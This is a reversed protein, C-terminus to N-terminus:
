PAVAARDAVLVQHMTSFANGRASAFTAHEVAPYAAVSSSPRRRRRGHEPEVLVELRLVGGLREIVFRARRAVRDPTGQELRELAVAHAVLGVHAQRERAALLERTAHARAVVDVARAQDHEGFPLRRHEARAHQFQDRRGPPAVRRHADVRLDVVVVQDVVDEGLDLGVVRADVVSHHEVNLAVDALGVRGVDKEHRLALHARRERVVAQRPDRARRHEFEAGRVRNGAALPAQRQRLEVGGVLHERGARHALERGHTRDVPAADAIARDPRHRPAQLPEEGLERPAFARRKRESRARENSSPCVCRRPTPRARAGRCRRNSAHSCRKRRRAIGTLKGGWIAVFHPAAEDDCTLTVDRPREFASTHTRPLVRLGAWSTRVAGVRDPMYHALTELLYDTEEATPRVEAPDGSFSRETTGVLVHGKWPMLFVARRDRPAECYYIGRELTGDLELHTGAVLEVAFCLPRPHIRRQVDVIWPRRRQRADCTIADDGRELAARPLRDVRTAALFKVPHRASAGLEAASALVARVLAADDTQGDFYEFVAQLGDTRLGDLSEWERRPVRRFLDEQHLGGLAAYMSLGARIKWAPRSTESYVPLFFPVLRVLEPANRLLLAREHLSERVLGLQLTELYRLGGHILKSSRSSTGFAPSREEVLLASLGAAAPAQLVGAGQIGGGIVLVDVREPLSM